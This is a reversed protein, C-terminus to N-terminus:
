TKNKIYVFFGILFMVIASPIHSYYLLAPIDYYCNAINTVLNFNM